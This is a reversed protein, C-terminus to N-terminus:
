YRGINKSKLISVKITNYKESKNKNLKNNKQLYNIFFVKRGCVAFCKIYPEYYLVFNM